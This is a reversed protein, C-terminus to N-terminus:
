SAFQFDSSSRKWQVLQAFGKAEQPEMMLKRVDRDDPWYPDVKAWTV